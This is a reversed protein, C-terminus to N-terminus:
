PAPTPTTAPSGSCRPRSTPTRRTSDNGNGLQVLARVVQGAPCSIVETLVRQCASPFSTIGTSNEVRVTNGVNRMVVSNPQDTTQFYQLEGNNLGVVSAQAAAPLAFAAVAAPLVAGLAARRLRFM